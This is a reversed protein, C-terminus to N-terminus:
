NICVLIRAPESAGASALRSKQITEEKTDLRINDAALVPMDSDEM